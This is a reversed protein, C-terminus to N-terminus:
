AKRIRARAYARDMNQQFFMKFIYYGLGQMAFAGMSYTVGNIVAGDLELWLGADFIGVAVGVFISQALILGMLRIEAQQEADTSAMNSAVGSPLMFTKM